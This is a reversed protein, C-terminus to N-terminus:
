LPAPPLGQLADAIQSDTAGRRAAMAFQLTAERNTLHLALLAADARTRRIDSPTLLQSHLVWLEM